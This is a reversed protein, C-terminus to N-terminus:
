STLFIKWRDMIFSRKVFCCCNREFLDQFLLVIGASGTFDTLYERRKDCNAIYESQHADETFVIYGQINFTDKVMLERLKELKSMEKLKKSERANIEM